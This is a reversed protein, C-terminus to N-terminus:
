IVSEGPDNAVQGHVPVVSAGIIVQEVAGVHVVATDRFGQMSWPPM